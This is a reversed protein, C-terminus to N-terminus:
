ANRVAKIIGTILQESAASGIEISVDQITIRALFTSAPDEGTAWTACTTCTACSQSPEPLSIPVIDPLASELVSEKLKRKWYFFQDKSISNQSCFDKISLGSSKQDMFIQTWREFKAQRTVKSINMLHGGIFINLSFIM